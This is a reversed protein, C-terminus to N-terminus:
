RTEITKSRLILKPLFRGTRSQYVAYNRGLRDLLMEEEKWSRAAVAVFYSFVLAGVLWNGTTLFMGVAIFLYSSYLPHRIWRYPGSRVVQHDVKTELDGSWHDGLIRHSWLTILAATNLILVGSVLFEHNMPFSYRNLWETDTLLLVLSVLAPLGIAYQITKITGEEYRCGNDAFIQRYLQYLGLSLFIALLNALVFTEVIPTAIM